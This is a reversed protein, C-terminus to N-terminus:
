SSLDLLVNVFLLFLGFIYLLVMHLQLLCIHLPFNLLYLLSSKTCLIVDLQGSEVQNRLQLFTNNEFYLKAQPYHLRM